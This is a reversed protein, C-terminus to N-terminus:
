NHNGPKNHHTPLIDFMNSIESVMGLKQDLGQSWGGQFQGTKDTQTKDYDSGFRDYVTERKGPFM